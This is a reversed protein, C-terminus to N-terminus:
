GGSMAVSESKAHSMGRARPRAMRSFSSARLGAGGSATQEQAGRTPVGWQSTAMPWQVWRGPPMWRPRADPSATQAAREAVRARKRVCAVGPVSGGGADERVRGEGEMRGCGGCVRWVGEGGEGGEMFGGYVRWVGEM